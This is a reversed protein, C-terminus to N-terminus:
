QAKFARGGPKPPYDPQVKHVILGASVGQSVRVRQPQRAPGIEPVVGNVSQNDDSLVFRFSATANVGIAKDGSIVPKFKWKSVTEEVAKALLPDGKSARVHMVDGTDLVWFSALVEGEIKQERAQPPYIVNTVAVPELTYEPAKPLPNDQGGVPAVTSSTALQAAPATASDNGPTPAASQAWAAACVFLGVLAIKRM